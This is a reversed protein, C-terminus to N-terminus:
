PLSADTYGLSTPRSTSVGQLDCLMKVYAQISFHPNCQRAIHYLNLAQMTVGTSPSIPSCPVVGQQILASAIFSDTSLISLPLRKADLAYHSAM